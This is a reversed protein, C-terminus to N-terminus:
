SMFSPKTNWNQNHVPIKSKPNTVHKKEGAVRPYSGNLPPIPENETSSDRRPTRPPNSHLIPLKHVTSIILLMPRPSPREMQLPKFRIRDKTTPKDPIQIPFSHRSM